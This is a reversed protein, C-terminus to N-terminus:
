NGAFSSLSCTAWFPAATWGSLGSSLRKSTTLSFIFRRFRLCIMMQPGYKIKSHHFGCYRDYFNIFLHCFTFRFLGGRVPAMCHTVQNCAVSLVTRCLMAWWKVRFYAQLTLRRPSPPLAVPVAIRCAAACLPVRLDVHHIVFPCIPLVCDRSTHCLPLHTHARVCSDCVHGALSGRKALQALTALVARM